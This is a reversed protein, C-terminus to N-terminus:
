STNFGSCMHSAEIVRLKVDCKLKDNLFKLNRFRPDLATALLPVEVPSM